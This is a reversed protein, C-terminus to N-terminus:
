FLTPHGFPLGKIQCVNLITNHDHTILISVNDPGNHSYVVVVEAPVGAVM